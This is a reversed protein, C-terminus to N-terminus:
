PLPICAPTKVGASLFDDKCETERFYIEPSNQTTGIPSQYKDRLSMGYYVPLENGPTFSDVCVRISIRAKM